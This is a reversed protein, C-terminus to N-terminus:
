PEKSQAARILPEAWDNSGKETGGLLLAFDFAFVKEELKPAIEFLGSHLYPRLPRLDILTWREPSAVAAIPAYEEYDTISWHQGPRNIVSIDIHLSDLGNSRALEAALNGLTYVNSWGLGKRSHWHGSKFVVRPLSDGGAMAQRYNRLFAEKMMEERELNSFYGSPNERSHEAFLRFNRASRALWELGHRVAEGQGDGGEPLAEFRQYQTGMLRKRELIHSLNFAQAEEALGTLKAALDQNSVAALQQLPLVSSLTRDVGWVRPMRTGPIASVDAIMHLEQDTHFHLSDPFRAAVELVGQRGSRRGERSTQEMIYPGQELALYNFGAEAHLAKFLATTFEPVQKVNHPEGLVVFQATRAERLLFRLGAGGLQGDQDIRYSNRQLLEQLNPVATQAEMGASLCLSLAAAILSIKCKM